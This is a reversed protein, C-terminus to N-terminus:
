TKPLNLIESIWNQALLKIEEDSTNTNIYYDYNYNKVNQDSYNDPIHGPKDLILTILLSGFRNKFKQIEEPERCHIFFINNDTTNNKQIKKITHTFPGNNFDSWLKKMDSLFKRAEDTKKGDWGLNKAIKKVKDITSYNHVKMNFQKCYKKCLLVFTDKKSKAHGNIIIYHNM